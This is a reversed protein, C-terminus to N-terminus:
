FGAGALKSWAMPWTFEAEYLSRGALGLKRRLEPSELLTTVAEAFRQPTDAILMNEGHQAPLGEAGLTTSVVPRGAAWAEIIKVRTGSGARLPAVVVQASALAEVGSAPPGALEIRPDGRLYRRVAEPHKGILRWVLKPWRSSVIPWVQRHFYRVADLNPDYEFNGSFALVHEEAVGPLPLIPLANPYASVRSKPCAERLCAADHESVALLRHFRPLWKRELERSAREFRRLALTAPLRGAAARRSMLVSEINHLDLVVVDSRPALQEFYPACWFHEILAARYHNDGLFGSLKAGFGAFRDNLPPIGRALRNANRALRAVPHRSHRPLELVLIRRALHPPIALAPDLAGPERFVVVDVRYGQNLYELLSASRISGGGEPPFPAEPALFLALPNPMSVLKIGL